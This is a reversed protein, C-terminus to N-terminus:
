CEGDDGEAAGAVQRWLVDNQFAAFGASAEFVSEDGIRDYAASADRAFGRAVPNEAVVNHGWGVLVAERIADALDREDSRSEDLQDLFAEQFLQHYAIQYAGGIVRLVPLLSLVLFCLLLGPVLTGSQLGRVVSAPNLEWTTEPNGLQREPRLRLPRVRGRSVAWFLDTGLPLFSALPGDLRHLAAGLSSLRGDTLLRRLLSDTELHEIIMQTVLPEQFLLTTTGLDADTRTIIERNSRAIMERAADPERSNPATGFRTLTEVFEDTLGLPESAVAMSRKALMRRPTAFVKTPPEGAMRLWGPGRRAREELTVSSCNFMINLAHRTAAQGISSMVLTPFYDDDLAPRHHPGTQLVAGGQVCAALEAPDHNTARALTSALIARAERASRERIAGTPHFLRRAYTRVDELPLPRLQAADRCRGWVHSMLASPGPATLEAQEVSM